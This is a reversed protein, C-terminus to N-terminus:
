AGRRRKRWVFLRVAGKTAELSEGAIDPPATM